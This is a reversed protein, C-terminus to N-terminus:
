FEIELQGRLIDAIPINTVVGSKDKLCVKKDHASIIWGVFTKSDELPTSLFIKVLNGANRKYDEKTKLPRDLGPSSVELLYKEEILSQEEIIEGLLFSIKSCDSLTVGGTKNIFIKLLRKRGSIYEIDVLELKESEVVQKILTAINQPVGTKKLAKM